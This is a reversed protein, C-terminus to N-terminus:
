DIEKEECIWDPITIRISRFTDGPLMPMKSLHSIQSRPIWMRTGKQEIMIAKEREEILLLGTIESEDDKM